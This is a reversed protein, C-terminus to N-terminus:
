FIERTIKINGQERKYQLIIQKLKTSRVKGGRVGGVVSQIADAIGAETM